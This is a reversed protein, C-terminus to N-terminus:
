QAVVNFEAIMGHHALGCYELCVARYAGPEGFVYEVRNVYGPMAQTQFLIRGQADMVGFGHTVDATHVNFVVPRGAPLTEADVEWYWQAGSVNVMTTEAAASVAHPWKWLSAVSVVVGVALMGLILRTRLREGGPAPEGRGSARISTVFAVAVLAMLLLSLALVTVQM